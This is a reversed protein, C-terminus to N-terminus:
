EYIDFYEIEGIKTYHEKVYQRVKEPNQWNVSTKDNKILLIKDQTNELKEIQGEEGKIGLNGKLFMDYDKEYGDTPIRYIAADSDLIYVPKEAKEIYQSVNLIQSQLQDTVRIYSYHKLSMYRDASKLYSVTNEIAIGLTLFLVLWLACRCFDRLYHVVKSRKYGIKLRRIVIHFLYTFGLFTPVIGILFHGEDTIPYMTFATAVSYFTLIGIKKNKAKWSVAGMFLLTLPFLAAIAKIYIPKDGVWLTYYAIHNTFTQIGLVAYNIFDDFAGSALLYILLTIVPIVAGILRIICAKWFDRKKEKKKPHWLSLLLTAIMIIAGTSQKCCISLGALIGIALDYREKMGRKEAKHKKLELLIILLVLFLIAFNYDLTFYPKLLLFLVLFSTLRIYLNVKLTKLIHYLLFLIGSGLLVGLLRTIILESGFLKLFVSAIMPLLPTQIMNFDRYPVLGNAMQNAFNFNWIEDLGGLNKTLVCSAVLIITVIFFGIGKIITKKQM